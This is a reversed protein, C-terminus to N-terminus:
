HTKEKGEFKTGKLLYEMLLKDATEVLYSVNIDEGSLPHKVQAALTEVVGMLLLIQGYLNGVVSELDTPGPPGENILRQRRGVFVRGLLIVSDSSVLQQMIDPLMKPEQTEDDTM